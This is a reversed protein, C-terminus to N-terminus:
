RNYLAQLHALIQDLDSQSSNGRGSAALLTGGDSSTASFNLRTEAAGFFLAFGTTTSSYLTIHRDGISEISYFDMNENPQLTIGYSAIEAIVDEVPAELFTAPRGAAPACAAVIVLLFGLTAHHAFPKM